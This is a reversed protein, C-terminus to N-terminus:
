IAVSRHNQARLIQIKVRVQFDMNPDETDRRCRTHVTSMFAEPSRRAEMKLTISFIWVANEETINSGTKGLRTPDYCPHDFVLYASQVCMEVFYILGQIDSFTISTSQSSESLWLVKKLYILSNKM